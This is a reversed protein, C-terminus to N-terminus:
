NFSPISLATKKLPIFSARTKSSLIYIRGAKKGAAEPHGLKQAMYKDLVTKEEHKLILTTGDYSYKCGELIDVTDESFTYPVPTTDEIKTWGTPPIYWVEGTMTYTGDKNFVLRFNRTWDHLKYEKGTDEDYWYGYGSGTFVAEDEKPLTLGKGGSTIGQGCSIAACVLAALVILKMGKKM